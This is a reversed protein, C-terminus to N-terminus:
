VHSIGEFFLAKGVYNFFPNRQKEKARASTSRCSLTSDLAQDYILPRNAVDLMTWVENRM